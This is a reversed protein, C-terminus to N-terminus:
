TAWIRPACAALGLLKPRIDQWCRTFLNRAQECDNGLYRILLFEGALTVSCLPLQDSAQDVLSNSTLECHQRLEDILKDLLNEACGTDTVQETEDLFPGAVLLANVSRNAFGIAQTFMQRNTDNLIVRERLSIKGAVEIQLCQQLNGQEFTQNCAPLGLSCIDWGIFTSNKELKVLTDLRTNANPYLITELPLWEISANQHAILTVKQQQLSKDARAKYVRGAGPTTLLVRAEAQATVNIQLNDGSVLGGPPHLIYIHALDRGEPYFAKQIYLPGKHLSHKVVTGRATKKLHLTLTAQWHAFGQTELLDPRAVKCANPEIIPTLTQVTSNM